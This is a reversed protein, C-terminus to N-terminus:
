ASACLRLPLGRTPKEAAGRSQTLGKRDHGAPRLNLGGRRHFSSRHRLVEVIKERLHARVAPRFDCAEHLLDLAARPVADPLSSYRAPSFLRLSRWARPWAGGPVDQADLIMWRLSTRRLYYGVALGAQGGGIVVVDDDRSDDGM